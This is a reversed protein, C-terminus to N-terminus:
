WTIGTTPESGVWAVHVSERKTLGLQGDVDVDEMSNAVEFDKTGWKIRKLNRECGRLTPLLHAEDHDHTKKLSYFASM